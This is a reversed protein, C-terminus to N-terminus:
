KSSDTECMEGYIWWRSYTLHISSTSGSEIPLWVVGQVRATTLTYVFTMTCSSVSIHRSGHKAIALFLLLNAIALFNLKFNSFSFKWFTRTLKYTSFTICAKHILVKFRHLKKEQVCKKFKLFCVIVFVTRTDLYLIDNCYSLCYCFPVGELGLVLGSLTTECCLSCLVRCIKCQMNAYWRIFLKLLMCRITRDLLIHYTTLMGCAVTVSGNVVHVSTSSHAFTRFCLFSSPPEIPVRYVFRIYQKRRKRHVITCYCCTM